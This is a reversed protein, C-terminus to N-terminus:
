PKLLSRKLTYPFRKSQVKFQYKKCHCKRCRHHSDHFSNTHGCVCFLKLQESTRVKRNIERDIYYLENMNRASHFQELKRDIDPLRDETSRVHRTGHIDIVYILVREDLYTIFVEVRITGPVTKFLDNSTRIAYKRGPSKHIYTVIGNMSEVTSIVEYRHKRIINV